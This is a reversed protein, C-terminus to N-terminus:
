CRSSPRASRRPTPAFARSRRSSARPTPRSGSAGAARRAALHVRRELPGRRAALAAITRAATSKGKTGVVHVADYAREPHGLRDLLATMRELGFGDRPWPSLSALWETASQMSSAGTASSSRAAGCRRRRGSREARIARERAAARRARDRQASAHARRRRQREGADARAGPARRGRLDAAGRRRAEAARGLSPVDVGSGARAALADAETDDGAEPWPAVILRTAREPLYSWIEETVHPMVPHLLKLLRELAATATARADADGDYLRQKIAEAYWDCFDDFTLHYLEDVLHSFDFETLYGEAARQSQSLRALMWREELAQPREEPAAGEGAQLILRAVNWLKNALKRGEEIAGESFRVDQSSAMKMLGYRTADAGHADIQALPNMGTGLSKSMRGGTPAHVTSHIVVDEFPSEGMLELGAFIMRNEWLRIIDRATTNMDGPYFTQLDETQEPWGLTAFPWLASSFWTDLM